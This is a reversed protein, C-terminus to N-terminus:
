LVRKVGPIMRVLWAVAFTLPVCLTALGLWMILPHLGLSGLM